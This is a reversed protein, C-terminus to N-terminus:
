LGKNQKNMIETVKTVMVDGRLGREVIRGDPGFLIIVPFTRTVPLFLVGSATMVPIKKHGHINMGPVLATRVSPCSARAVTIALVSTGDSLYCSEM